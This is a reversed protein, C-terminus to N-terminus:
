ALTRPYGGGVVYPVYYPAPKDGKVLMPYATTDIPKLRSADPTVIGCRMRHAGKPVAVRAGTGYNHSLVRGGEDDFSVYFGFGDKLDGAIGSLSLCVYDGEVLDLDTMLKVTAIAEQWPRTPTGVIRYGGDDLRM